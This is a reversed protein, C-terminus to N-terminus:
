KVVQAAQVQESIIRSWEDLEFSSERKSNPENNDLYVQTSLKFMEDGSLARVQYGDKVDVPGPNAALLSIAMTTIKIM